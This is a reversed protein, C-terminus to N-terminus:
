YGRRPGYGMMHGLFTPNGYGGMGGGHLSSGLNAPAGGGGMGGMMPGMMSMGGTMPAALISAGMTAYDMLGPTKTETTTSSVPASNVFGAAGGLANLSAADAANMDDVYSMEGAIKDAENGYMMGGTGSLANIISNDMGLLNGAANIGTNVLNANTTNAGTLMNLLNNTATQNGQDAQLQRNADAAMIPAIANTVGQGVGQGFADSGLRGGLAYQSSVNNIAQNAANQIMPSVQQAEVGGGDLYSQIQSTDVMNGGLLGGVANKAGTLYDSGFLGSAMGYADLQNANMDPTRDGEFVDPRFNTAADFYATIPNYTGFAGYLDDEVNENMYKQNETTNKGSKSLGGM